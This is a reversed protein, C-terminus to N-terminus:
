KGTAETEAKPLCFEGLSKELETLGAAFAETALRCKQIRTRQHLANFRQRLSGDVDLVVQMFAGKEVM